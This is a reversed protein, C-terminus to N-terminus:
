GTGAVRKAARLEKRWCLRLGSWTDDVACVKVDVLGTPLAVERVTDETIDTPMGSAKKPWAVWIAGDVDMVKSLSPLRRALDARKTHFSMVIDATGAARTRVAVGEPLTEDLLDDFGEPAGLLVLSSGEKIGLKRALPTGSYGTSSELEPAESRREPKASRPTM